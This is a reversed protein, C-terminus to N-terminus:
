SQSYCAVWDEDLQASAGAKAYPGLISSENQLAWTMKFHPISKTATGILKGDMYYKISSSTWEIATTHWGGTWTVNTSFNQEGPHTYASITDGYDDEPYDMEYGNDYFLHASKFGADAHVVKFREVYRGYEQAMCKRPVMTAVVNPGSSPRYMNIHMAGNSVSVAKEPQYGGGIPPHISPDPCGSEQKVCEQATDDWGNPYAWWNAYYSGYNKLGGCYAQPTDVNHNCDSFAGVPVTGTFDDAFVQKWGTLNGAPMAQGSPTISGTTPPTPTTTPPTTTPPTTPPPTTTTVSPVTWKQANTDNSPWIWIQNGNTTASYKDDLYLGSNPNMITHNANNIVWQEAVDTASCQYLQVVTTKVTSAGKVDLCYNSGTLSITGNSNATWNQAGTGNCKYLQVKNGNARLNAHDDLCMSTGVGSLIAGSVNTTAANAAIIVIVGGTVAFAAAFMLKQSNRRWFSNKAVAKKKAKAKTTKVPPKKSYFM